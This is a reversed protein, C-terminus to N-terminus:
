TYIWMLVPKSSGRLYPDIFKFANNSVAPCGWGEPTGAPYLEKDPIADWSHFVITRALAQSNSSELGHLLYKSHVGWSSYGREGIKYKGLSSSHSGHANSFVPSTKTEDGSWPRSGCGHSVLCSYLAKNSNFDWLVLRNLGSHVSFDILICHSTSFGKEQCYALAEAAKQSTKENDMAPIPPSLTETESFGCAVWPVFALICLWFRPKLNSKLKGQIKNKAKLFLAM